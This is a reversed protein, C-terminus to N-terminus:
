QWVIAGHDAFIQLTNQVDQKVQHAVDPYAASLLAAIEAVTRQGDCFQWILAGTSNSHFIKRNTPHFLIVEDDLIEVQYGPAHAPRKQNLM